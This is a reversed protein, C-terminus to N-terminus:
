HKSLRKRKRLHDSALERQIRLEDRLNSLADSTAEQKQRLTSQEERERRFLGEIRALLM